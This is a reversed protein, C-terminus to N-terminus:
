RAPCSLFLKLFLLFVILGFFMYVLSKSGCELASVMVWGCKGEIGGGGKGEGANKVTFLYM